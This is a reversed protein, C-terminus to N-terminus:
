SKSTLSFNERRKAFSFYDLSVFKKSELAVIIDDKVLTVNDYLTPAVRHRSLSKLLTDM